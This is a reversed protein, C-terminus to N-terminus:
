NLFHMLLNELAFAGSILLSMLFFESKPWHYFSKQLYDFYDFPGDVMMESYPLGVNGSGLRM